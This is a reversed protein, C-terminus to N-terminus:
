ASLTAELESLTRVLVSGLRLAGDEFQGDPVNVLLARLERTGYTLLKV